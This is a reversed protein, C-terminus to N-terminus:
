AQGVRSADWASVGRGNTARRYAMTLSSKKKFKKILKFSNSSPNRDLSKILEYDKGGM